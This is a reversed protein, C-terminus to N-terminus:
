KKIKQYKKVGTKTLIWTGGSKKYDTGEILGNAGRNLYRRLTDLKYGHEECVEKITMIEDLRFKM